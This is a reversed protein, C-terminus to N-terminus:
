NACAAAPVLADPRNKKLYDVLLSARLRNAYANPHGDGPIAIPVGAASEKALSMDIVLAGGDELRQIIRDNTFGTGRLYGPDKLYPVITAVGYKEKALNIAALLVRIYLDVDDHSPRRYPNALVPYIATNELWERLLMSPGENCAGRFVLKGNEIAYRPAHATWPSKCATREAHWAATLFVFLRPRPGFVDDFRGTQLERLFQAPGYGTFVLDLVRLTHHSLDAFYQPFTQNDNVGYGFTCSDGFFVLAPGHKCSQTQRLLHSDIMYEVDYITTGTRPDMKKECFRGPHAPGWGVIPQPVSEGPTYILSPKPMQVNAAAEVLCLGFVLSTPVLMLDRRKGRVLSAIDALLCFLFVFAFLQFFRSFHWVEVLAILGLLIPIAAIRFMFFFTTGSM